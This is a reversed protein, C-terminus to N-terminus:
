TTAKTIQKTFDAICEKSLGKSNEILKKLKMFFFTLNARERGEMDEFELSSVFGVYILELTNIAGENSNFDNLDFLGNLLTEIQTKKTTEM